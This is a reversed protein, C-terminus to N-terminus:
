MYHYLCHCVLWIDKVHLPLPLSLSLGIPCGKCTVISLSLCVLWVARVHLPLSLSLGILCGKCTITSVIVSLGILCEKCRITSIIVSLGFWVARVHLPLLLCVLWVGRVHLPLSLSLGILCGKCTATSIFVLLSWDFVWVHLFLWQQMDKIYVRINDINICCQSLYSRQCCM